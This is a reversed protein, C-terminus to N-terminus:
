RYRANSCKHSFHVRVLSLAHSKRDASWSRRAARVGKWLPSRKGYRSVVSVAYPLRSRGAGVLRPGHFFPRRGVHTGSSCRVGVVVVVRILSTRMLTCHM